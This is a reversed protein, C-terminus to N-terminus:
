CDDGHAKLIRFPGDIRCENDAHQLFAVDSQRDILWTLPGFKWSRDCQRNLWDVPIIRSMKFRDNRLAM